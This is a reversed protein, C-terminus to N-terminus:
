VAPQPAVPPSVFRTYLDVEGLVGKTGGQEYSTGGPEAGITRVFDVADALGNSINEFEERRRDILVCCPVDQHPIPVAGCSLVEFTLCRGSGQITSPPLDPHSYRDSM